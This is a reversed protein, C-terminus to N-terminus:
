GLGCGLGLFYVEFGWLGVFISSDWGVKEENDEGAEDWCGDAEYFVLLWSSM